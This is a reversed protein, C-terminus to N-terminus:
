FEYINNEKADYAEIMIQPSRKGMWENINARGVISLNVKDYMRLEEIMTTAKFKIYTIGNIVFKLTDNTKGIVQIDKKDLLINFIHIMPESSGQGWVEPYRGLDMILDSIDKHSISREFHVDYMGEGFDMDKLKENAYAHFASLNSDKIACGAANAHGQAYEFYNSDNLFKKFDTLECDSNNRLSGKNIGDDGLRALITPRKFKAALKMAVLGTIESPFRDDEDLRVFLIKNELLDHKHIKIELSDVMGDIIRNQRSKANTCERLSEIAVEEMTGKAGRKGSPVKQTGDILSMFLREKEDMTGVRVIANMMPVIYFAVTTPNVVKNMSYEQKEIAKKFFYNTINEFGTKMIYRNEINLVSGADGCVGLAALDILDDSYHKNIQKDIYRCFQWAVGAGTLDKNTYNKSLQNNIVIANDSFGQGEDVEHHDLVLIRTGSEKLQAHYKEDNSSSDPCIILDYTKNQEMLKKIHDELGHQKGEHFWYEINAESDIRKIYKYIIAGSTYGDVDCDVVLLISGSNNLTDKLIQWGAAINDLNEPDQLVSSTPNLYFTLDEIGREKMLNELYNETYNKSILNVKM